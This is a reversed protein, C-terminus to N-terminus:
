PREGRSPRAIKVTAHFRKPLVRATLQRRSNVGAKAFVTKLHQQVTYPSIGLREAIESTGGGELVLQTVERERDTLRYAHAVLPAISAPKPADLIVAVSRSTVGEALSAHLEVCGGSSVPVRAVATGGSSAVRSAQDAVTYVAYPLRGLGADGDWGLRGLWASAAPTMAQVRRQIDLLVLGPALAEGGRRLAQFLAARFARGLAAAVDHVFQAEEADFDRPGARFLGLSGWCAGDAVFSVRLESQLGNPELLAHYRRSRRVDGGTAESLIGSHTAARALSAFKNFDDRLYEIESAGRNDPSLNELYSTTETLTEPDVTHWCASDYPVAGVLAKSAADVLTEVDLSETPLAALERRTREWVVYRPVM